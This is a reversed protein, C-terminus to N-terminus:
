KKNQIAYIIAVTCAVFLGSLFNIAFFINVLTEMLVDDYNFINSLIVASISTLIFTLVGVFIIFHKKYNKM